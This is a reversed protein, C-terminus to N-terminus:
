RMGRSDGARQQLAPQNWRRIADALEEIPADKLVFGAVGNGLARHVFGPRGYMTLILTKCTPLAEDLEAAATLGDQVPMEIDVVAVDPRIALAASVLEDGRTFRNSACDSGKSSARSPESRAAWPEL